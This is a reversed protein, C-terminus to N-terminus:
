GKRAAPGTWGVTARPTPPSVVVDGAHIQELADVLEAAPLTKSLYGAAGRRLATEVLAPQLNWTYVVVKDAHENALLVDLNADDAEGQAFTDYLAIDVDKSIPEDAAIDVVQIRDAYQDFLHAVGILVVEYDDVLALRM